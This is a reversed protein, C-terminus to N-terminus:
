QQSKLFTTSILTSRFVKGPLFWKEVTIGCQGPLTSARIADWLLGGTHRMVRLSM